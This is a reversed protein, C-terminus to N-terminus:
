IVTLIACLSCSCKPGEWKSIMHVFTQYDVSQKFENPLNNWLHSGYYTFSNRGYAIKNFKPIAVKCSDRLDYSCEKVQFLENLPEPNLGKLCKYVETVMVQLRSLLMTKQNTNKLLVSYSSKYDNSLFRLAREQIKEIKRICGVGCFNWVVPCFNFTSLIFSRFLLLKEKQGLINKFRYMVKLQRSAKNCLINVHNKFNLNDDIEIGLLKVSNEAKIINEQVKIESPLDMNLGQPKMLMLQFKEPNVKMFNNGFWEMMINTDTLLKEILKDTKHDTASLTNDDAYNFLECHKVSLFIDNLFLNFLLPGLCSGQPIGRRMMKWESRANRVKVRQTRESLYSLMFKCANESFGYVYMKSLLLDHPISDFAKSLDMLLAGVCKNDDLSWKWSNIALTLVQNCGHGKRYAGLKKSFKDKMYDNIQDAIISEFIKAFITILNVPRYNEKIMYDKKKHIPVIESKKMDNPFTLSCFAHNIISTMTSALERACMKISKPNILDYGAAKNAKIAKLKRFIVNLGVESFDFRENILCMKEKIHIVSPHSGHYNLINNVDSNSFVEHYFDTDNIDKAIDVFYDNFTNAVELNTNIIKDNEKLIICGNDKSNKDSFFPKICNWFEKPSSGINCKKTFYAKIARKRMSTVLNRQKKYIQWNQSNRSKLYDNRYKNRRYMAKMLNSHMYPIKATKAIRSKLPAHENLIENYMMNFAWFQDNVNDFINCVEGPINEVDSIFAGKEFNKYSRYTIKQPVVIPYVERVVCGVMNHWDSFGCMLNFPKCFKASNSVIVPDILTGKLSKHCTKTKIINKLGYIDCIQHDMVNDPKSMDINVDGVIVNECSSNCLKDLVKCALNVFAANKVKPNKYLCLVNFKLKKVHFNIAINEIHCDIDDIECDYLRKHPVDERVYVMMGGSNVSKDKRYCKYSDCQFLNTSYTDDLKTETVCIVDVLNKSLIVHLYEFKNRISNINVHAIILNKPSNLRVNMLEDLMPDGSDVTIPVHTSDNIAHEDSKRSDNMCPDIVDDSLSTVNCATLPVDCEDDSETSIQDITSHLGNACNGM